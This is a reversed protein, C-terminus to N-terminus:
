AYQISLNNQQNAGHQHYKDVLYTFFEGWEAENMRTAVGHSGRWFGLGKKVCEIDEVESLLYKLEMMDDPMKAKFKMKQNTTPHNFELVEADSPASAKLLFEKKSDPM